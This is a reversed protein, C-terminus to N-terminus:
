CAKRMEDKNGGAARDAADSGDLGSKVILAQVDATSVSYWGRPGFREAGLAGSRIAHRVAAPSRGAIEAAKAVSVRLDNM